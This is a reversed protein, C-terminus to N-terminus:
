ASACEAIRSPDASRQTAPAGSVAYTCGCSRNPLSQSSSTDDSATASSTMGSVSAGRPEAAACTHRPFPAAISPGVTGCAGGRREVRGEGGGEGRKAGNRGLSRQLPEGLAGWVAEVLLDGGVRREERVRGAAAM